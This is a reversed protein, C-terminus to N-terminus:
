NGNELLETWLEITRRLMKGMGYKAELRPLDNLISKRMQVNQHLCNVIPELYAETDDEEVLFGNVGNVVMQDIDGVNASVVPVGLGLAELVVNPCGESNSTLVLVSLDALLAPLDTRPGLFHVLDPSLDPAVRTRASGELGSGILVAHSNPHRQLLHAVIDVFRPVNKVPTQKGVFGIVWQGQPLGLETRLRPPSAERRLREFDKGNPIVALRESPIGFFDAVFRAGSSSNALIRPTSSLMAQYIRRRLCAATVTGGRIVPLVRIAIDKISALWAYTAPALNLAHVLGIRERRLLRSLGVLRKVEWGSRRPLVEVRYGLEEILPGYPEVSDSLSIVLSPEYGTGKLERLLSFTQHEAGGYGLQGLLVAIRCDVPNTVARQTNSQLPATRSM